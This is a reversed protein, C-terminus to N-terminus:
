RDRSSPQQLPLTVTLVTRHGPRSDVDIRGGHNTVIRWCKSLGLGLGRGAQRASYYPDFLHRREEPSIGPGDDTICIRVKRSDQDLGIEIQGRHGIAELSNQCMARLVVCLQTGDAEIEVPGPQGARRLTIEQRAARASIEEIVGDVLEVLDIPSPEPRPPRAFLMMDAIMEHARKAQASILALARRREPNQEERLFLQARGAIVTLPNNIEHGAGAAFEAMAELKETELTEQFRNELARLRALRATLPPLWDGLGEVRTLWRRRAESGRQRSAESDIAAGDPLAAHGALVEAARQVLRGAPTGDAELLWRPLLSSADEAPLRNGTDLWGRADHLLGLLFASEAASPEEPDALRTALDAVQVADRVRDAYSESQSAWIAEAGADQPAEWQLVDLAHESLWQAVDDLRGSQLDDGQGAVCVTWLLLPPDGGLATGVSERSRSAEDGLLWQALVGASADCLPLVWRSRGAVLAPLRRM